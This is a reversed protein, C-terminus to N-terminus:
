NVFILVIIVSRIFDTPVLNFNRAKKLSNRQIAFFGLYGTFVSCFQANIFIYQDLSYRDSLHGSLLSSWYIAYYCQFCAQLVFNNEYSRRMSCQYNVYGNKFLTSCQLASVWLLLDKSGTWALDKTYAKELAKQTLLMTSVKGYPLTYTNLVRWVQELM